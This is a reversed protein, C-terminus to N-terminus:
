AAGGNDGTADPLTKLGMPGDGPERGVMDQINARHVAIANILRGFDVLDDDSFAFNLNPTGTRSLSLILPSVQLDSSTSVRLTALKRGGPGTYSRHTYDKQM